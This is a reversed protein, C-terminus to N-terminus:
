IKALEEDLLKDIESNMSFSSEVSNTKTVKQKVDIIQPQHHENTNMNSLDLPVYFTSSSSLEKPTTPPTEGLINQRIFDFITRKMPSLPSKIPPVNQSSSLKKDAPPSPISLPTIQSFKQRPAYPDDFTSLNLQPRTDIMDNNKYTISLSSSPMSSPKVQNIPSLKEVNIPKELDMSEKIKNLTPYLRQQLPETTDVFEIIENNEIYEIPEIFETSECFNVQKPEIISLKLQRMSKDVSSTSNNKNSLVINTEEVKLPNTIVHNNNIINKNFSNIQKGEVVVTQSAESISQSVSDEQDLEDPSLLEDIDEVQNSQETQINLPIMDVIEPKTIIETQEVRKLEEAMIVPPQPPPPAQQQQEQILESFDDSVESKSTISETPTTVDYLKNGNIFGDASNFVVNREYSHPTKFDLLYSDKPYEDEKHANLSSLRDKLPGVPVDIKSKEVVSTQKELINLREKIATIDGSLRNAKKAAATEADTADDIRKEVLSSMREKISRANQFEGSLRNSATGNSELKDSNEKEFLERRKLIDVKPLDKKVSSENSDAAGKVEFNLLRDEIKTGPQRKVVFNKAIPKTDTVNKNYSTSIGGFCGAQARSIRLKYDQIAGEYTYESPDPSSAPATSSSTEYGPSSVYDRHGNNDNVSM